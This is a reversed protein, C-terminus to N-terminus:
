GLSQIVSLVSSFFVLGIEVMLGFWRCTFSDGRVRVAVANSKIMWKMNDVTWNPKSRKEEKVKMKNSKEYKGNRKKIARVNSHVKAKQLWFRNSNLSRLLIMEQWRTQEWWTSKLLASYFFFCSFLSFFLFCFSKASMKWTCVVTCQM